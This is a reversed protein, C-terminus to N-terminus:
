YRYFDLKKGFEEADHGLNGLLMRQPGFTDYARRALPRAGLNPIEAVKLYVQPLKALALVEDFDKATGQWGRGRHDLIVPM